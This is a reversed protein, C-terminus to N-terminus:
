PSPLLSSMDIDQVTTRGSQVPVQDAFGAVTETADVNVTAVVLDYVGPALLALRYGSTSPDVVTSSVAGPFQPSAAAQAPDYTGDGYALIVVREQPLHAVTGAIAGAEDEVALRIVPQLLYRTGGATSQLAKRVDFDATLKVTGNAPVEFPGVAKYGTQAGSPVFLPASATGDNFSVYSGPNSPATGGELPADLLFRIQNYHGAPLALTGLLSTLGGTLDLLNIQKPGQFDGFSQWGSEAAATSAKYQIDSITIYVGDINSADVPADTISLVVTGNDQSPQCGWFEVGAALVALLPFLVSRKM